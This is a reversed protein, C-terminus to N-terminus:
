VLDFKPIMAAFEGAVSRLKELQWIMTIRLANDEEDCQEVTYCKSNRIARSIQERVSRIDAVAREIEHKTM